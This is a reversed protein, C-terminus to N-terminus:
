FQIDQKLYDILRNLEEPAIMIQKRNTENIEESILEQSSACSLPLVKIEKTRATMIGRMSPIKWEAIPEQCGLVVPLECIVNAKGGDIEIEIQVKDGNIDVQMVPSFHSIGLMGAVLGHTQGSNYDIAEKGMLIMDFPNSKIYKTIESALQYSDSAIGDIRVASDAGLALCKRILPEADIKGVHFVIVEAGLSEKLEIARSLAYDDYPGVIYTLGQSEIFSNSSDISIKSTTDPVVSICVLIKM